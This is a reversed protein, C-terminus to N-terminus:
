IFTIPTTTLSSCLHDNDDLLFHVEPQEKFHSAVEEPLESPTHSDLLRHTKEAFAELLEIAQEDNENTAVHNMIDRFAEVRLNADVLDPDTKGYIVYEYGYISATFLLIVGILSELFLRWM